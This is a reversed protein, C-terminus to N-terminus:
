FKLPNISKVQSNYIRISDSILPEDDADPIHLSTQYFEELINIAWTWKQDLLNPVGAGKDHITKGVTIRIEYHKIMNYGIVEIEQPLPFSFEVSWLFLKKRFYNFEIDEKPHTLQFLEHLLELHISTLGFHIKNETAM